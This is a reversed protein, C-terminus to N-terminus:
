FQYGVSFNIHPSKDASAERISNLPFALQFSMNADGIGSRIGGGASYLASGGRNGRLDYVYGGDVFGYAQLWDIFPVPDEFTRRLELSGLIGSDGTRESFDYGRGFSPGGIGITQSSLLPRSAWQANMAARISFDGGLDRNFNLWSNLRTFRGSGELRSSLPDNAETAGFIGLGQTISVGAAMRGGAVRMNGWATATFTVIDDKQLGFAIYDQNVTLYALEASAYLSAENSRILPATLSASVYNSRGVSEFGPARGGPETRGTGASLNATIGTDGLGISYSGSVYVLEKPDLPNTIVNVSVSDDSALLGNLDLSLRARLPGTSNTGNNDLRVEGTSREERARVLLVGRNGERVYRTRTISIGPVDGALLIAREVEAKQPSPGVIRNLISRVRRNETGEIRVEDITGEELRVELIGMELEQPPIAASAFIYGRSRATDAISRALQQLESRSLQRGVYQDAVRAFDQNQLSKIGVVRVAGIQIMAADPAEVDSANSGGDIQASSIRNPRQAKEAGADRLEKALTTASKEPEEAAVVPSTTGGVILALAMARWSIHRKLYHGM